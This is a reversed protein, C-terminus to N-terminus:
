LLRWARWGRFGWFTEFLRGPGGPGSDLFDWFSDFLRLFTDSLSKESVKKLSERDKKEKIKQRFGLLAAFIGLIKQERRVGSFGQFLLPFAEFFWPFELSRLFVLSISLFWPFSPCPKSEKRYKKSVGLRSTRPSTKSVKQPNRTRLARLSRYIATRTKIRPRRDGFNPDWCWSQVVFGGDDVDGTWAGRKAM